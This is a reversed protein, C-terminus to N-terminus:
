RAFVAFARATSQTSRNCPRQKYFAMENGRMMPLRSVLARQIAIM